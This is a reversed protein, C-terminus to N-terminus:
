RDRISLLGVFGNIWGNCKQLATVGRGTTTQYSFSQHVEM